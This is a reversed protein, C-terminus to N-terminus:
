KRVEKQIIGGGLIEVAGDHEDYESYFVAAQGPSVSDWDDIFSVRAEGKPGPIPDITCLVGPHRYRLKVRSRIPGEPVKGSIWNVDAVLFGERRLDDKEGVTVANTNEDIEVVYLPSPNSLGLGKRQGVTFQHIGDHEGLKKGAVSRLEGSPPRSGTNREIFNGVKGSVFCIDQSEEKSAVELDHAALLDRVESKEMDGVPFVTSSLDDQTMAYLFYSQDKKLDKATYLGKTGDAKDRIRAYHGTAVTKIGLSRSRKRLERFKVKRNCDLCPNPTKGSLYANVFPDIVAEQFSDEFDFVYFPFKYHEAVLRADDFDAPACCTAKKANGQNNRYDWVQMAIGVVKYGEDSLLLASASSDVGGSMAVVVSDGPALNHSHCNSNM